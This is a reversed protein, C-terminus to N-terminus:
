KENEKKSEDEINMPTEDKNNEEMKQENNIINVCEVVNEKEKEISNM